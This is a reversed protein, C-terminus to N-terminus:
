RCTKNLAHPRGSYELNQANNLGLDIKLFRRMQQNNTICPGPTTLLAVFLYFGLHSGVLGVESIRAENACNPFFPYRCTLMVPKGSM